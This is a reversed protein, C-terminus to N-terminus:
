KPHQTKSQHNIIKTVKIAISFTSLLYFSSFLLSYIKLNLIHLKILKEQISAIVPFRTDSRFYTVVGLKLLPSTVSDGGQSWTHGYFHLYLNLPLFLQGTCCTELVSCVCENVSVCQLLGALAHQTLTHIGGLPLVVIPPPGIILGELLTLQTNHTNNHTHTHTARVMQWFCVRRQPPSLVSEWQTFVCVCKRM